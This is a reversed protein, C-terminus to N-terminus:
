FFPHHPRYCAQAIKSKSSYQVHERTTVFLFFSAMGANQCCVAAYRVVSSAQLGAIARQINKNDM